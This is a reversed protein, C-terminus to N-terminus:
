YVAVHVFKWVLRCSFTTPHWSFGETRAVGSCNLTWTRQIVLSELILRGRLRTFRTWGWRVLELVVYLTVYVRCLFQINSILLVYTICPKKHITIFRLTGYIVLFKNLLELIGAPPVGVKVYRHPKLPWIFQYSPQRYRLWQRPGGMVPLGFTIFWAFRSVGTRWRAHKPRVVSLVLGCFHETSFNRINCVPRCNEFLSLGVL